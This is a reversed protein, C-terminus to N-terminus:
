GARRTPTADAEGPQGALPEPPLEGQRRAAQLIAPRGTDAAGLKRALRVMHTKVTNRSIGLERAVEKLALEGDTELALLELVQRERPSLAPRTPPLVVPVADPVPLAPPSARGEWRAAFGLFAGLCLAVAM